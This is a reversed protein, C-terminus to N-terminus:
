KIRPIPIRNLRFFYSKNRKSASCIWKYIYLDKNLKREYLKTNKANTMLHKNAERNCKIMNTAADNKEVSVCKVWLKHCSVIEFGFKVLWIKVVQRTGIKDNTDITWRGGFVWKLHRKRKGTVKGNIIQM